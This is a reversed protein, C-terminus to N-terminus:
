TRKRYRRLGVAALGTGLLLLTAPEPVAQGEFAVVTFGQDQIAATGGLLNNAAALTFSNVGATLPVALITDAVHFGGCCRAPSAEPTPSLNM